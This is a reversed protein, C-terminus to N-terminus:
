WIGGWPPTTEGWVNQPGDLAQVAEISFAIQLSYGPPYNSFSLGSFYSDILGIYLPTTEDVREVSYKYYMYNDIQRNDYWNATDYNFPMAEEHLISLETVVGEFNTYTLTLQEYIKVRLYTEVNSTVNVKLRFDEFYNDSNGTVINILYVGPKTVGSAIEVEYAAHEVDLDDVFYADLGVQVFGVEGFFSDTKLYTFWAYTSFAFLSLSFILM